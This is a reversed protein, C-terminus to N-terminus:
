FLGLFLPTCVWYGRPIEKGCIWFTKLIDREHPIGALESSLTSFDKPWLDDFNVLLKATGRRCRIHFSYLSCFPLYVIHINSACSWILRKSPHHAVLLQFFKILPARTESKILQLNYLSFVILEVELIQM